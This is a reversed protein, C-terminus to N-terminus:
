HNFSAQKAAEEAMQQAMHDAMKATSANNAIKNGLSKGAVGGAALIATNLLNSIMKSFMTDGSGTSTKGSASVGSPTSSGGQQYALAPNIGAAQMDKVARQYSTNSMEEQWDRTKQAEEAEFNQAQIASALGKQAETKDAQGMFALLEEDVGISNALAVDRQDITTGGSTKYTTNPHYGFYQNSPIAM